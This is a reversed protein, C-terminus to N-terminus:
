TKAVRKARPKKVTTQASAMGLPLEMEPIQATFRRVPWLDTDIRSHNKIGYVEALLANLTAQPKETIGDIRLQRTGTSVALKSSKQNQAWLDLYEAIERENLGLIKGPSGKETAL